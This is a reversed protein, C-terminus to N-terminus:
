RVTTLTLLSNSALELELGGAAPPVAPLEAFAETESTCVARLQGSWAPLGDLHAQRDPGLNLIHVAFGPTGDSDAAKLATILVDPHNSQTAVAVGPTPTLNCFHKVFWFRKTPVLTTAGGADQGHELLSYDSTFEWQMTGQPRAYLILEQYMRAEQLAYRFTHLPVDRWNADVGLETVLLPLKLRCALAAWAGYQDPSAGGWSHFGVAGVHRMAEADEAAPLPYDSNHPSAVDALLMKTRLGLGELYSGISKIADRHEEPSLKVRVGYEPENFSFLDPEVGHAQRAHLLYSGISELLEDWKEPPVERGHADWGEWPDAYLWEPLHWVSIVYPIGREQLERALLFERRLNSDPSDHAVLAAWNTEEPRANDNEPEWESLTMETRAWRVRLNDLTYRTVPSEIGFCYNGGFGDMRFLEREPRIALRAPARDAQRALSLTVSLSASQGRRMPGYALPVYASYTDGRWERTDQVSVNCPRDLTVTLVTRGSADALRLLTGTGSLFHREQPREVPMRADSVAKGADSLECMGNAFVSIPVDLFFFVGEVDLDAEATAELDLTVSGPAEEVTETFSCFAGRGAEIRGSWHSRTGSRGFRLDRADALGPVATWGRLPVRLTAQVDVYDGESSLAMLPGRRSFVAVEGAAEASMLAVLTICVALVRPPRAMAVTRSWQKPGM